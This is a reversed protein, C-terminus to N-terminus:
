WYFNLFATHFDFKGCKGPTPSSTLLFKLSFFGLSVSILRVLIFLNSQWHSTSNKNWTLQRFDWFITLCNPLNKGPFERQQNKGWLFCFLWGELNLLFLCLFNLFWGHLTHVNTQSYSVEQNQPIPPLTGQLLWSLLFEHPILLHHLRWSVNRSM